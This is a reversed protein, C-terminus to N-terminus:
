KGLLFRCEELKKLIKSGLDPDIFEGKEKFINRIFQYFNIYVQIDEFKIQSNNQYTNM